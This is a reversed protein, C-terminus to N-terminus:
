IHGEQNKETKPGDREKKLGDQEEKLRDQEDKSGDQKEKPGDPEERVTKRKRESDSSKESRGMTEPATLSLILM